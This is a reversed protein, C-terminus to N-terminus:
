RAGRYWAATLRMADGRSVPPSYGTVRSFRSYDVALSGFLRDVADSTLPWPVVRALLDGLRGAGRMVAHPVPLLRAPRGLANAIQRTLEASSEAPSDGVVFTDRASTPLELAAVIGAALNDAFMTSRLNRVSGVPVPIGRDVLRFLRLPNGKMGPGFVMPPRLIVYGLGSRECTARVVAEAGLKSQGYPTDPAPPTNDDIPQAATTAVAGISSLFIVRRVGAAAAAEVLRRTGDVNVERFATAPDGSSERLVHARGALHILSQVGALAQILAPVDTLPAVMQEVGPRSTTARVIARTAVGRAVLLDCLRSGIFGTAGTVAVSGAGAATSTV